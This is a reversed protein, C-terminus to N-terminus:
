SLVPQEAALIEVRGSIIKNFWPTNISKSQLNQSNALWQVMPDFLVLDQPMQSGCCAASGSSLGQWLDLATLHGPLVLKEWLLPLALELGIAGVPAEGFGVKKDEYSHACHDVAIARIIGAKVGAVLALRDVENGLPPDLRWSTNYSDLIATSGLLHLWTVSATVPLGRQQAGAVLEVGRATSLRMIHVSVRLEAVIELIASLAVTESCVPNGVLGLRLAAAGMRAVGGAALQRDLPWLMIPKQYPQLYELLKQLLQLNDIPRGDAFGVIGSAALDQLDSLRDRHIGQTLAGWIQLAPAYSLQNKAVQYLSQIKAVIASNDIAPLTDPLINLRVFGGAAAAALLSLMTEEAEQGPEGSHSYLDVLGPALIKNRGDQETFEAPCDPQDACLKTLQGNTVLADTVRDIGKVPDLYRVQRFLLQTM